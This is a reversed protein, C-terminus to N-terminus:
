LSSFYCCIHNNIVNNTARILFPGFHKLAHKLVEVKNDKCCVTYKKIKLYISFGQFKFVFCPGTQAQQDWMDKAASNSVWGKTVRRMHEPKYSRQKQIESPEKQVAHQGVWLPELWPTKRKSHCSTHWLPPYSPKEWRTTSVMGTGVM